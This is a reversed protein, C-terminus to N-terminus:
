FTKLFWRSNRSKGTRYVYKSNRLFASTHTSNKHGLLFTIDENSAEKVEMLYEYLKVHKDSTVMPVFFTKKIEFFENWTPNVRIFIGDKNGCLEIQDIRKVSEKVDLWGNKSVGSVRQRVENVLIVGKRYLSNIIILDILGYSDPKQQTLVFVGPLFSEAQMIVEVYNFAEQFKPFERGYMLSGLGMRKVGMGARDVLQFQMMLKALAKNRHRPQHILINESTVGGYFKGPNTIIMATSDFDVSLMGDISYDRHVIANIFAEHFAIDDLIPVQYTKDKFNLEPKVNCVEFYKKALKISNWICEEWVENIFLQGTRNKWSFRYEYVGLWKKIVEPKGLFLIGSKTLSGNSTAGIAELFANKDPKSEISYQKRNCYDEYAENIAVHNLSDFADLDLIDGSWDYGHLNTVAQRIEDPDMPRSSRGDRIYTKGSATSILSDRRQPVDIVLYDKTEFDLYEAIIDLYPKINGKIRQQIEIVDGSEFGVLQSEWNENDINSSDKVGVIIIGGKLNAFASIEEALKQSENHLSKINKYEKFEVENNELNESPTVKCGALIERISNQDKIRM